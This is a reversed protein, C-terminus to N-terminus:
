QITFTNQESGVSIAEGRHIVVRQRQPLKRTGNFTGYTSGLDELTVQKGDFYVTCHEKSVGKATPPFIVQCSSANRGITLRSTLEYRRSTLDGKVWVLVRRNAQAPRTPNLPGAPAEKKRLKPLVLAASIGLIGLAVIATVVVLATQNEPTPTPAETIQPTVQPTETSIPASAESVSALGYPIEMRDLAAIIEDSAVAFNANQISTDAKVSFTPMGVVYGNADILAGGSNGGNIPANIQVFKCADNEALRSVTGDTVTMSDPDSRLRESDATTTVYDSIGPFGICFIPEGQSVDASSRFTAPVRKTSQNPLKIIAIDKSVADAGFDKVVSVEVMDNIDNFVIYYRVTFTSSKYIETVLEELPMDIELSKAVAICIDIFDEEDYNVVHSNTVFFEVPQGPKGLAVASGGGAAVEKESFNLVPCTMYISSHVRAVSQKGIDVASTALGVSQTCIFLGALLCCLVRRSRKLGFM